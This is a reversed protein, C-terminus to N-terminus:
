RKSEAIYHCFSKGAVDNTYAMRVNVGQRAELECLKPYKRFLMNERATFYALDFKVHLQSKELDPLTCFAKAIPANSSCSSNSAKAHEKKLLMM